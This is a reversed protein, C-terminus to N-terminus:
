QLNFNVIHYISRQFQRASAPVAPLVCIKTNPRPKSCIYNRGYAM